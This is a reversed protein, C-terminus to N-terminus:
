HAIMNARKEALKSRRNKHYEAVRERWSKAYGADQLPVMKIYSEPCNVECPGCTEDMEKVGWASLNDTNDYRLLDCGIFLMTSVISDDSKLKLTKRVVKWLTGAFSMGRYCHQVCQFEHYTDSDKNYTSDKGNYLATQEQIMRKLTTNNTYSWGM